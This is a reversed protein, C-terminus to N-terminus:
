RTALGCTTERIHFNESAIWGGLRRKAIERPDTRFRVGM